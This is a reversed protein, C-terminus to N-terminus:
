KKEPIACMAEYCEDNKILQIRKAQYEKIAQSRQDVPILNKNIKIQFPAGVFNKMLNDIDLEPCSKFAMSNIFKVSDPIGVIGLQPCNYCVGIGIDELDGDISIVKLNQCGSFAEDGISSVGHAIVVKIDSRDAFAGKGIRSYGSIELLGYKDPLM